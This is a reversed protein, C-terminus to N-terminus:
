SQNANLKNMIFEELFKRDEIRRKKFYQNFGYLILFAYFLGAYIAIQIAIKPAASSFSSYLSVFLAVLFLGIVSINVAGAILWFIYGLSPWLTIETHGANEIWRGKISLRVPILELFWPRRVSVRFSKGSVRGWVRKTNESTTARKKHFTAQKLKESCDHVSYETKLKIKM